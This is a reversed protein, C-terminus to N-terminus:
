AVLRAAIPCGQERCTAVDPADAARDCLACTAPLHWDNLVAIGERAIQAVVAPDRPRKGEMEWGQVTGDPVAPTFKQGLEARTLGAAKRWTHIKHGALTTM